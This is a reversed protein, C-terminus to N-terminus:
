YMIRSSSHIRYLTGYAVDWAESTELIPHRDKRGLGVLVHLRQYIARWDEQSNALPDEGSEEVLHELTELEPEIRKLMKWYVPITLVREIAM